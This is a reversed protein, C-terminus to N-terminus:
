NFFLFPIMNHESVVGNEDILWLENERANLVRHYASNYRGGTSKEDYSDYKEIKILANEFVKIETNVDELKEFEEESVEDFM